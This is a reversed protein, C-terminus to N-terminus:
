SPSSLSVLGGGAGGPVLAALDAPQWKEDTSNPWAWAVVPPPPFVRSIEMKNEGTELIAFLADLGLPL